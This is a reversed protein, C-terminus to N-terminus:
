GVWFFGSSTPAWRTSYAAASGCPGGESWFQASGVDVLFGRAKSAPSPAALSEDSSESVVQEEEEEEIVSHSATLARPLPPVLVSPWRYSWVAVPIRQLTWQRATELVLPMYASFLLIKNLISPDLQSLFFGPGLEQVYIELNRQNLWRGRWCVRAIDEQLEEFLHTAGGTRLGGPTLLSPDIGLAVLIANWRGRFAGAGGPFLREQKKLVFVLATIFGIVSADDIKAFQRRAGIHRTKPTLVRLFCAQVFHGFHHPLLIDEKRLALGEFPRLMGRYWSLLCCGFRPWGWLLAICTMARVVPVPVPTRNDGGELYKWQFALDWARQVGVGKLTREIDVISNIVESFDQLSRDRMYLEMGYTELRSSVTKPSALIGRLDEGYHTRLWTSFEFRLRERRALGVPSVRAHPGPILPESRPTRAPRPGDGELGYVEYQLEDHEEDWERMWLESRGLRMAFALRRWNSVARNGPQLEALEVLDRVSGERARRLWPPDPIEAAPIVNGRSPHDATNLRTPGFHLGWYQDSGVQFPM